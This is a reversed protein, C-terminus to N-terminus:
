RPLETGAGRERARDLVRNAFAADLAGVGLNCCVVRQPSESGALADGVAGAPAPWDSFRGLSRYYEFQSVDDVLFLDAKEALEPRVLA